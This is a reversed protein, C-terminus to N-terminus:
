SVILSVFPKTELNQEKKTEYTYLWTLSKYKFDNQSIIYNYM